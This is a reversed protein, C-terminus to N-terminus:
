RTAPVVKALTATRVIEDVVVSLNRPDDGFVNYVVHLEKDEFPLVYEYTRDGKFRQYGLGELEDKDFIYSYKTGVIEDEAKGVKFESAEGRPAAAEGKKVMVAMFISAGDKGYSQVETIEPKEGVTLTPQKSSSLVIMDSDIVNTLPGWGDPISLQFAGGGSKVDTYGVTNSTDNADDKESAATAHDHKAVDETRYVLWGVAGVLVVLVIIVLVKFSDRRHLEIIPQENM